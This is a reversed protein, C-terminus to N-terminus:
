EEKNGLIKFQNIRMGKNAHVHFFKVYDEVLRFAVLHPLGKKIAELFEEFRDGLAKYCKYLGNCWCQSILVPRYRKDILHIAEQNFRMIKELFEETGPPFSLEGKRINSSRSKRGGARSLFLMFTSPVNYKKMLNHFKIYEEKGLEAWFNVYNYLKWKEQININVICDPQENADIDLQVYYVPTKLNKCAALRHQGDIVYMEKDVIIPNVALLNSEKISNELKFTHEKNVARQFHLKKFIKYDTTKRINSSAYHAISM